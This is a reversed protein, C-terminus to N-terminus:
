LQILFEACLRLLKNIFISVDTTINYTNAYFLKNSFNTLIYIIYSINDLFELFM